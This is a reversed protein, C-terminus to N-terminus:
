FLGDTLKFEGDDESMKMEHLKQKPKAIERFPAKPKNKELTYELSAKQIASGAVVM